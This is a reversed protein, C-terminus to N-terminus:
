EEKLFTQLGAWAKLFNIGKGTTHYKSGVNKILKFRLSTNLWLEFLSFQTKIKYYLDTKGIPTQCTNVIEVVIDYYTRRKGLM